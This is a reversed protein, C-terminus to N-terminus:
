LGVFLEVIIFSKYINLLIISRVLSAVNATGQAESKISAKLISTMKKKELRQAHVQFTTDLKLEVKHLIM